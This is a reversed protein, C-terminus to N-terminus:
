PATPDARSQARVQEVRRAASCRYVQLYQQRLDVTGVGVINRLQCNDYVWRKLTGLNKRSRLAHSPAPMVIWLVDRGGSEQLSSVAQALPVTDARLRQVRQGELYHALVMPQDSFVVDGSELPGKLWHAVGRFDYRRANLYHSVLTPMGAAIIITAVTASLLWRPRLEWSVNSLRDLFVGAGIFFAPLIPVLYYGSIPTRLSLLTLFLLPFVTLSTLLIALSRDREHWLLVMGLGTALVLPVTLSDVFALLYFIQKV